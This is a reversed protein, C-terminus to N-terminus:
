QVKLFIALRHWLKSEATLWSKQQKEHVIILKSLQTRWMISLDNNGDNITYNLVTFLYFNCTNIYFLDKEYNSPRFRKYDRPRKMMYSLIHCFNHNCQMKNLNFPKLTVKSFSWLTSLFDGYSYSNSVKLVLVIQLVFYSKSFSITNLFTKYSRPRMYRSQCNAITIKLSTKSRHRDM